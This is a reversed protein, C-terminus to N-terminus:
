RNSPPVVALTKIPCSAHNSFAQLFLFTCIKSTYSALVSFPEVHYVPVSNITYLPLVGVIQLNVFVGKGMYSAQVSITQLQYLTVSNYLM